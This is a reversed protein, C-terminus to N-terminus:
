GGGAAVLKEVAADEDFADEAAEAAALVREVDDAHADRPIELDFLEQVSRLLEQSGTSGRASSQKLRTTPKHLLKNVIAQAMSEVSKKQKEDLNEGVLSLTKEAETAAVNELMRRLAKITPVARLERQEKAFQIVSDRVILEAEEAKHRRTEKNEEVVDSLDDVDYSFVGELKSVNPDIDRPVAIDILFIPRFRRTRVVSKMMEKTIVFGPAATSCLAVDVDELLRPIESMERAVGGYTDALRHAREYSRNAVLLQAGREVFHRAALEGMEGAGVLLCSLGGLEGFIKRALEVGAYSVSVAAGAIDTQTRVTKAVSFARHFVRNLVPGTTKAAAARFYTNKVQGLIQPEGVVVSDLSAAVRFLHSVADEDVLCFLHDDLSKEEIGHTSHLFKTVAFAASEENAAVYIEVRNCTSLIAAEQIGELSVLSALADDLDESPFAIRERLELPARRHNLGICILQM